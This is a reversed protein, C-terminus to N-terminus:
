ESGTLKAPKLLQNMKNVIWSFLRGYMAKAMADRVDTAEATTNNRTITEGRAVMGSTTLADKLERSEIGLLKAVTGSTAYMCHNSM